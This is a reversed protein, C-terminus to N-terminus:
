LMCYGQAQSRKRIWPWALVYGACPWPRYITRNDDFVLMRLRVRWTRYSAYISIRLYTALYRLRALRSFRM